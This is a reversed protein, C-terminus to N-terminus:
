GRNIVDGCNNKAPPSNHLIGWLFYEAHSGCELRNVGAVSMNQVECDLETPLRSGCRADHSM